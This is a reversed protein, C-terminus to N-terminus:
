SAHFPLQMARAAPQRVCWGNSQGTEWPREDWRLGVDLGVLETGVLILFTETNSAAFMARTTPLHPGTDQEASGSRRSCPPTRRTCM